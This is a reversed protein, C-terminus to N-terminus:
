SFDRRGVVLFGLVGFILAVISEPVVLVREADSTAPTIRSPQKMEGNGTGSVSLMAVTIRQGGYGTSGSDIASRRAANSSSSKDRVASGAVYIGSTQPGEVGLSATSVSQPRDFNFGGTSDDVSDPHVRDALAVGMALIVPLVVIPRVLRLIDEGRISVEGSLWM